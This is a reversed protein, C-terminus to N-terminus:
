QPETRSAPLGFVRQRCTFEAIQLAAVILSRDLILFGHQYRTQGAQVREGLRERLFSQLTLTPRRQTANVALELRAFAKQLRDTNDPISLNHIHEQKNEQVAVYHESL